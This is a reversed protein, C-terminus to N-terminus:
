NADIGIYYKTIFWELDTQHNRIEILMCSRMGLRTQDTETQIQFLLLSM